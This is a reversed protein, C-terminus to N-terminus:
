EAAAQELLGTLQPAIAAAAAPRRGDVTEAARLQLYGVREGDQTRRCHGASKATRVCVRICGRRDFWRAQSAKRKPTTAAPIMGAAISNVRFIGPATRSSATQAIGTAASVAIADSRKARPACPAIALVSSRAPPESHIRSARM